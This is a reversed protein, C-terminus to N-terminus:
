DLGLAQERRRDEARQADVEDPDFGQELLADTRSKLGAEIAKITADVDQVPHIYQWAQPTWRIPTDVERQM